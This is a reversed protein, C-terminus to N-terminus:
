LNKVIFEDEDSLNTVEKLKIEGDIGDHSFLGKFHITFECDYHFKIKGRVFVYYV